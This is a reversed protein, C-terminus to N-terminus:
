NLHLGEERQELEEAEVHGPGGGNGAACAAPRPQAAQGGHRQKGKV